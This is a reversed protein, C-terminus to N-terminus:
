NVSTLIKHPGPDPSWIIWVGSRTVYIQFITEM